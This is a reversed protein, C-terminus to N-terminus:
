LSLGSRCEPHLFRSVLRTRCGGGEGMDGEGVVGQMLSHLQTGDNRGDIGILPAM